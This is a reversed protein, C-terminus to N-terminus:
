GSTKLSILSKYQDVNDIDAGIEAFPTVVAKVRVGLFRGVKRELTELDLTSPAFKALVVRGLTGMGVLKALKAPSKRYAYAQELVPLAKAMLDKRMYGINGGTFEGEKLKLTTRKMGPFIRDCDEARIIPYSLATEPECRNLFDTVAETTLCPLDVTVLLFHETTVAALGRGLSEVFSRGGEVQRAYLGEPGGVLIPDGIPSVADLVIQVMPRGLFELEARYEVGTHEALGPECKGGALIVIDM